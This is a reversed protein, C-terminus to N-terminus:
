FNLEMSVEIQKDETLGFQKANILFSSKAYTKGIKNILLGNTKFDNNEGNIITKGEIVIIHRGEEKISTSSSIKAKIVVKSKNLSEKPITLDLNGTSLDLKGELNNIEGKNGKQELSHYVINGSSLEQFQALISSLSALLLLISILLTKM